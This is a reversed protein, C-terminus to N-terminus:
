GSMAKWQGSLEDKEYKNKVADGLWRTAGTRRRARLEDWAPHGYPNTLNQAYRSFEHSKRM